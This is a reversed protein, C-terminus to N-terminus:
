LGSQAEESIYSKSRFTHAMVDLQDLYPKKRQGIAQVYFDITFILNSRKDVFTTSRFPGGIMHTPNKWTGEVRIAPWRSFRVQEWGTEDEVVVDGEYIKAALRNRQQVIWDYNIKISDAYPTWRVLMSRDPFFRRLWVYGEDLSEDVVEYDHQVRMTFPFHRLLYEEIKTQEGKAFIFDKLRQYYSKEFDDYVLEGLDYIRQIMEDRTPAVMYVVYQDKAWPEVQPIYFYEGSKIGKIVDESLISRVQKSVPGDSDLTALFFLTRRYQLFKLDRIPQWKLAYERELSPMMITKSFHSELANVFDDKNLSDAFVIIEDFDGKSERKVSCASSAALVAGLLLLWAAKHMWKM